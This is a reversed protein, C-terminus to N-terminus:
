CCPCFLFVLCQSNQLPLQPSTSMKGEVWSCLWASTLWGWINDNRQNVGCVYKFARGYWRRWSFFDGSESVEGFRELNKHTSQRGLQKSGQFGCGKSASLLSVVQLTRCPFFSFFFPPPPFASRSNLLSLVHGLMKQLNKGKKLCDSCQRLKAGAM